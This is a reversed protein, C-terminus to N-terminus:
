GSENECQFPDGWLGTIYRLHKSMSQGKHVMTQSGSTKQAWYQTEGERRFASAATQSSTTAKTQLDALAIAKRRLAWESWEYSCVSQSPNAEGSLAKM